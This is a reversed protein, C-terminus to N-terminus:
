TGCVDENKYSCHLTHLQRPLQSSVVAAQAAADELHVVAFSVLFREQRALRQQGASTCGAGGAEILLTLVSASASREADVEFKVASLSLCVVEGTWGEQVWADGDALVTAFASFELLGLGALGTQCGQRREGLSLDFILGREQVRPSKIAGACCTKGALGAKLERFLQRHRVLRRAISISLCM